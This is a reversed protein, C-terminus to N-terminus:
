QASNATVRGRDARAAAAAAPNMATADGQTATRREDLMAAADNLARAESASVGGAGEGSGPGCGALGALM